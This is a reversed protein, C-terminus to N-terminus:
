IRTKAHMYGWKWGWDHNWNRYESDTFGFSKRYEYIAQRASWIYLEFAGYM